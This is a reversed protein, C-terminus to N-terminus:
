DLVPEIAANRVAMVRSPTIPRPSINPPANDKLFAPKASSKMPKNMTQINTSTPNVSNMSTFFRDFSEPACSLLFRESGGNLRYRGRGCAGFRPSGTGLTVSFVVRVSSYSRRLHYGLRRQIILSFSVIFFNQTQEYQHRQDSHATM